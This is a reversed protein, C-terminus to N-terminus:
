LWKKEKYSEFGSKLADKIHKRMADDLKKIHFCAKGKLLKLLDPHMARKTDTNAYIPMFYFGVYGKQILLAAFHLEDRKRGDIEIPKENVLAIQGGSGGRVKMAGKEYPLLLKKLEEFIALLEPQGASKDSYKYGTEASQKTAAKKVVAKKAVKKAPAAKKAAKKPAAKKATAM